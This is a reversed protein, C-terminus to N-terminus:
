SEGRAEHLRARVILAAATPQTELDGIARQLDGDRARAAALLAEIKADDFPSALARALAREVTTARNSDARKTPPARTLSWDDDDARLPLAGLALGGLCGVLAARGFWRTPARTM